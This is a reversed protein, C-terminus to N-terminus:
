RRRGPPRSTERSGHSANGETPRRQLVLGGRRGCSAKAPLAPRSGARPIPTFKPITASTVASGRREDVAAREARRRGDAASRTAAATSRRPIPLRQRRELVEGTVAGSRAVRVRADRGGRHRLRLPLGGVRTGTGTPCRLGPRRQQHEAMQRVGRDISGAGAETPRIAGCRARPARSRRPREDGIVEAHECAEADGGVRGPPAVRHVGEGGAVVQTRATINEVGSLAGRMKSPMTAATSEPASGSARQSSAAVRTASSPELERGVTAPQQRAAVARRDASARRRLDSPRSSSSPHTTAYTASRRPCSTTMSRNAVAPAADIAADLVDRVNDTSPDLWADAHDADIFLPMRDHISGLHGISDRTLITFSLLWEAPDDDANRPGEVM